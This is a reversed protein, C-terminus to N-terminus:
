RRRAEISLEQIDTKPVGAERARKSEVIVSSAPGGSPHAAEDQIGPPM